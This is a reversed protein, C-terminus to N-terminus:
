CCFIMRRCFDCVFSFLQPIVGETTKDGIVIIPLNKLDKCIHSIEFSSGNVLTSSTQRTLEYGLCSFLREMLERSRRTGYPDGATSRENFFKWDNRFSSWVYNITHQVPADLGFDQESNGKLTNDTEISHLIDDSLFHGYIHISTYEM